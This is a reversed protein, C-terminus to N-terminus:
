FSQIILENEVFGNEYTCPILSNEFPHSTGSRACWVHFFDKFFLSKYITLAPPPELRKCFANIKNFKKM